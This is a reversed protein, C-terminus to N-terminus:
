RTEMREVTVRMSDSVEYNGQIIAAQGESLGPAAIEAISDTRVGVQVPIERALSDPTISYIWYTDNIDDRLLASNPVVLVDRHHGVTINAVGMAGIRPAPDLESKNSEFQIRVPVTQSGPDSQASMSVVKGSYKGDSTSLLDIECPQGVKIKPLASLPVNAIFDLTS